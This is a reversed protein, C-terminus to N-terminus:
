NQKAGCNPCFQADEALAGGCSVCVREAPQQPAELPKGCGACFKADASNVQGCSCRLGGVEGAASAGGNLVREKEAQLAAIQAQYGEIEQELSRIDGCVGEIYATNDVGNKWNEYVTQGLESKVQQIAAEVHDIKSRLKGSELYTTSQVGAAVVGRDISKKLKELM